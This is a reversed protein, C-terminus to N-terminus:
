NAPYSFTASSNMKLQYGKGPQLNGIINLGYFPWYVNGLGDKVIQLLGVTGPPSVLPALMQEVNGQGQRLYGIICWGAPCNLVVNQPVIAIGSVDLYHNSAGTLKLQYGQGVVMDGIANLGWLPWFVQGAGNKSIIVTDGLVQLV